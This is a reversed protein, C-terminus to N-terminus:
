PTLQLLAFDALRNFLEKVSALLNLRNRRLQEDEVMVMVEDFFRDVPKKLLGLHEFCSRYRRQQLAQELAPEIQLFRHYLEQEAPEGLLARQVAEGGARRSLNAM